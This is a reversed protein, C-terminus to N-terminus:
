VVVAKKKKINGQKKVATKTKITEDDSVIELSVSVDSGVEHTESQGDSTDRKSKAISRYREYESPNNTQLERWLDATKRSRDAFSLGVMEPHNRNESTFVNFGSHPRKKTKYQGKTRRLPRVSNDSCLKMFAQTGPTLVHLSNFIGAAEEPNNTVYGVINDATFSM